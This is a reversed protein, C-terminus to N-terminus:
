ILTNIHSLLVNCVFIFDGGTMRDFWINLVFLPLATFSADPLYQYEYITELISLSFFAIKTPLM